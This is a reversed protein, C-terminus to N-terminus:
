FWKELRNLAIAFGEGGNKHGQWIEPIFSASSCCKKVQKALHEFDIDGDGIQLGEDDVGRADVLHLHKSYPGVTEIFSAFSWGFKTCALKSHSTDLCINTEYTKCFWEIEDPDMFLNHYRQGGMLWPFPPMTQPLLEVGESDVRLFGEAVREYMKRRDSEPIFSKESFGGVNVIIFPRDARKFYPKLTRAVDVVNQLERIGREWIANDDSALDLLYDRAFVEPSHVVLDMDLPGDMYSEVSIDMDKFSLHFELLDPAIKELFQKYDHCRVPVGWPHRFKYDHFVNQEGIVDAEFFFDGAKIDRTALSGVLESRRNPQIGRGPNKIDIIDDTIVDGKSVDRTAVLSKALIERNMMEGQSLVRVPEGISDETQRIAEVMERFEDPLLSIRHDNGELSRDVTFHKEVIKAGLAVASVAVHIGREHGSYGVPCEGIEKLRKLYSLNIDKFPPPYASNCHLLAFQAGQRQLLKVADKIEQENSMGTSVIMPKKTAAVAALLEHNTLDASAIKYAQVGMGELAQLSELDWPTCLPIAGCRRVYNLAEAMEENSLQFRSLLDLVYQSGLDESPDNAADANRYLSDMHRLQFKVCDAGADVALDILEKARKLSGNHNNGIEAIIFAKSDDSIERGEINMFSAEDFAIAVFHGMENVLPVFHIKSDLLNRIVEPDEDVGAVTIEKTMLDAVSRNIDVQDENVVWRRFDGDTFVGEITGRETVACVFGKKNQSMKILAELVTAHALLVFSEVNSQIIM